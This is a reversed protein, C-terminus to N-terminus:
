SPSALAALVAALRRLEPQWLGCGWEPPAAPGFWSDPSNWVLQSLPSFKVIGLILKAFGLLRPLLSLLSPLMTSLVVVVSDGLEMLLDGVKISLHQVYGLGDVADALSQCLLHTLESELVELKARENV